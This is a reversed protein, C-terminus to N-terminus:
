KGTLWTRLTGLLAVTGLAVPGLLWVAFVRKEVRTLRETQEAAHRNMQDLNREMADVKGRIVAVNDAVEDFRQQAYSRM